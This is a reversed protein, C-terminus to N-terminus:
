GNLNCVTPSHEGNFFVDFKPIEGLAETDIFFIEKRTKAKKRDAKPEEGHM